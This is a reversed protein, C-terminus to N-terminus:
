WEPTSILPRPKNSVGGMFENGTEEIEELRNKKERERERERERDTQRDTEREGRMEAFCFVGKGPLGPCWATAHEIYRGAARWGAGVPNEFLLQVQALRRQAARLEGRDQRAQSALKQGFVVVEDAFVAVM